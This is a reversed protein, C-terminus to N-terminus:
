FGLFKGIGQLIMQIARTIPNSPDEAVGRAKRCIVNGDGSFRYDFLSTKGRYYEWFTETRITAFEMQQEFGLIFDEEIRFDQNLSYVGGHGCVFVSGTGKFVIHRLQGFLWSHLSGLRWHTIVDISDTIAVICGPHLCIGPHDQLDIRTIFLDPDVGSCLVLNADQSQRMVTWETMEVLGSVSSILPAKWKWLLRTRKRVAEPFGQVWGMRTLLKQEPLLQITCTRESAGITIQDRRPAAGNYLRIPKLRNTLAAFVYYCFLLWLTPGLLLIAVIGLAQKGTKVFARKIAEWLTKPREEIIEKIRNYERVAKDFAKDATKMEMEWFFHRIPHLWPPTPENDRLGDRENAVLRVENQANKLREDWDAKNEALYNKVLAVSVVAVVVLSITITKAGVWSIIRWLCGSEKDM